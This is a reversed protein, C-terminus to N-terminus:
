LSGSVPTFDCRPFGQSLNQSNVPICSIIVMAYAFPLDDTLSLHICPICGAPTMNQLRSRAGGALVLEPQGSPLNVVGIDRWFVGQRFGSGLAKACAEKAAFRKAYSASYAWGGARRESRHREEDTFIRGIFREGFRMLTREIRRIDIMDHGAGLIM